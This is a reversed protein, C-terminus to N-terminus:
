NVTLQQNGDPNILILSELGINYHYTECVLGTIRNLEKTDAQYWYKSLSYVSEYQGQRPVLNTNTYLVM